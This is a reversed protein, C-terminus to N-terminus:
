PKDEGDLKLLESAERWGPLVVMAALISFGGLTVEGIAANAGGAFALVYGLLVRITYTLKGSKVFLARSVRSKLKKRKDAGKM